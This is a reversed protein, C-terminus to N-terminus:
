SQSQGVEKRNYIYSNLRGTELHPLYPVWLTGSGQPPYLLPRGQLEEKKKKKEGDVPPGPSPNPIPDSYNSIYIM